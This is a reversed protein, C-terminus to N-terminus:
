LEPMSGRPDPLFEYDEGFIKAKIGTHWYGDLGFTVECDTDYTFRVEAKENTVIGFGMLDNGILFHGADITGDKYLTGWTYWMLELEEQVLADKTKYVEGGPYMYMVDFSIFGRVKRGLIEGEMLMICAIYSMAATRSPLYWQLGPKVLTGRIDMVGEEVWRCSEPTWEALFPEGPTDPHSRWIVRDHVELLHGDNAASHRGVKDLKFHDAGVNHQLYFFRRTDPKAGPLDFPIRRMPCYMNGEEDRLTGWLYLAEPNIGM